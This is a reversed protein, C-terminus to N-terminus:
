KECDVCVQHTEMFGEWNKLAGGCAYCTSRGDNNKPTSVEPVKQLLPAMCPGDVLVANDTSLLQKPIGLSVETYDGKHDMLQVETKQVSNVSFLNGILDGDIWMFVDDVQTTYDEINQRPYLIEITGQDIANKITSVPLNYDNFGEQDLGCWISVGRV